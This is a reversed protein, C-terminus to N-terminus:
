LAWGPSVPAADFRKVVRPPCGGWGVVAWAGEPVSDGRRRRDPQAPGCLRAEPWVELVQEASVEIPGPM